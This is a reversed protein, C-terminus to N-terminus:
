PEDMKHQGDSRRILNDGCEQSHELEADGHSTPMSWRDEHSIAFHFASGLFKGLVIGTNSEKVQSTGHCKVLKSIFFILFEIPLRGLRPSDM